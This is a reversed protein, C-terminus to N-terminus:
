RYTFVAVGPARGRGTISKEHLVREIADDLQHPRFSRVDRFWPRYHALGEDSQIKAELDADDIRNIELTVFLLKTGIDNIRERVTQYFRSIEPDDSKAAHLLSAFSYVRGISDEVWEYRKVIASLTTGDMIALKGQGDRILADAEDNAAALDREIAPDDMDAYLDSLDWVPLEGTAPDTGTAEAQQRTLSM